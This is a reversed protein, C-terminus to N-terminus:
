FSSLILIREELIRAFNTVSAEITPITAAAPSGLRVAAPDGVVVILAFGDHVALSPHIDSGSGFVTHQGVRDEGRGQYEDSVLHISM